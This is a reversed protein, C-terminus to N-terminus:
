LGALRDSLERLQQRAGADYAQPNAEAEREGNFYRGSVGDLAPDAVLRLTARVGDELPTVLSIVGDLPFHVADIVQSPEFLVVKIPLTLVTVAPLLRERTRTSLAGLIRNARLDVETLEM